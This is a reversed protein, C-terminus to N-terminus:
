CAWKKGFEARAESWPRVPNACAEFRVHLDGGPHVDTAPLGLGQLCLQAGTEVARGIEVERPGHPTQIVVSGGNFYVRSELTASMTIDHGSVSMGSETVVHVRFLQEPRAAGEIKLRLKEGDRLGAPLLIRLTKMQTLSILEEHAPSVELAPMAQETEGGFIAQRISINLLLAGDSDYNSTAFDKLWQAKEADRRNESMLLDRALIIRRLTADTGGNLDPHSEKLRTRFASRIAEDDAGPMLGLEFLASARAQIDQVSLRESESVSSSQNM